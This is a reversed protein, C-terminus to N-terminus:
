REEPQPTARTVPAVKAYKASPRPGQACRMHISGDPARHITAFEQCTGNLDVMLSGDPLVTLVPEGVEETSLDIADTTAGAPIGGLTGTEPDLYVRMGATAAAVKPAAAVPAAKAASTPKAKGTAKAPALATVRAPSAKSSMKAKAPTAAPEKKPAAGMLACAGLVLVVLGLHRAVPRM